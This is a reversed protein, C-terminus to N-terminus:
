KSSPYNVTKVEGDSNTFTTSVAQFGSPIDSKQTTINWYDNNPDGTIDGLFTASGTPPAPNFVVAGPPSLQVVQPKAWWQILVIGGVVVAGVFIWNM